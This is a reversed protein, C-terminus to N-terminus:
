RLAIAQPQDLTSLALRAARRSDVWSGDALELTYRTDSAIAARYMSAADATRGARAYATGLNIMQAPDNTTAVRAELQDIAAAVNDSALENYAADLESSQTQQEVIAQTPSLVAFIATAALIGSM